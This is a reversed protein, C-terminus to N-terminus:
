EEMERKDDDSKLQGALEPFRETILYYVWVGFIIVPIMVWLVACLLSIIFAVINQMWKKLEEMDFRLTRGRKVCPILGKSALHYLYNVSYGTIGSAVSIKVLVPEKGDQREEPQAGMVPAIMKEINELRKFIEEFPNNM